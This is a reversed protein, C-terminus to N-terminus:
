KQLTEFAFLVPAFISPEASTKQTLDAVADDLIRETCEFSPKRHRRSTPPIRSIDCVEPPDSVWAPPTLFSREAVTLDNFDLSIYAGGPAFSSTESGGSTHSMERM